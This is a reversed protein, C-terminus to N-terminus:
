TRGLHFCSLWLPQESPSQTNTSTPYMVAWHFLLCWCSGCVTIRTSHCCHLLANPDLTVTSDKSQTTLPSWWSNTVIYCSLSLFSVAWSLFLYSLADCWFTMNCGQFTWTRFHFSYQAPPLISPLSLALCHAWSAPALGSVASERFLFELILLWRATLVAKIISWMRFVVWNPLLSM